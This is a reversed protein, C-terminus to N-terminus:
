FDYKLRVALLWTGDPPKYKAQIRLDFRTKRFQFIESVRTQISRVMSSSGLEFKVRAKTRITFISKVVEGKSKIPITSKFIPFAKTRVRLSETITLPGFKFLVEEQGFFTSLRPYFQPDRYRQFGFNDELSLQRRDERIYDKLLKPGYRISSKILVRFLLPIDEKEKFYTLHLETASCPTSLLLTIAIALFFHYGM